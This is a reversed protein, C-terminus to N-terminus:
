ARKRFKFKFILRAMTTTVHVLPSARHGFIRGQVLASCFQGPTEFEPMEVYANGIERPTHADSGATGPLRHQHAFVRAQYSDTLLYARSNFVEIVDIQPLISEAHEKGLSLRWHDFPHPINVLGGQAKIRAVAEAASIGSPVEETLFLGMIEGWPTLVEEAVIVPFPAMQQMKLAGAITGHDAVAICNIGIELCRDVIQELPMNCDISYKTHVHLDAKLLKM